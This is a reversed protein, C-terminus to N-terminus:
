SPQLVLSASARRTLGLILGSALLCLAGATMFGVLYDGLWTHVV